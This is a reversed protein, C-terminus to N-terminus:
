DTQPVFATKQSALYTTTFILKVRQTMLDYNIKDPTDTPQHYDPHLGSFFGLVPIGQRHFAYHDSLRLFNGFGQSKNYDYQIHLSDGMSNAVHLLSDFEPYHNNGITYIYNSKHTSDIRGIMDINVNAKIDFPYKHMNAAFYFAGLLGKEEGTTALFVINKHLKGKLPALIRALELVAATGSANDDAGVCIGNYREGIHDYHASIVISENSKTKGPLYGAINNANAQEVILPCNFSFEPKPLKKIAKATNLKILEEVSQEFLAECAKQNIAFSRTMQQSFYPQRSSIQATSQQTKVQRALLPFADTSANHTIILAIAGNNKARNAIKYWSRLNDVLAVAVKGKLNLESIISDAGNGIFQCRTKITKETPASSLYVIDQYPKLAKNHASFQFDGWQWSWLGINQYYTTNNLPKIGYKEFHQVIYRAAKHEGETGTSRGKLSDSALTYVHQKLSDASISSTYTDKWKPSQGDSFICIFLLALSLILTKYM